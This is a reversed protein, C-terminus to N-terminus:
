PVLVIKGPAGSAMVAEHAAPAEALPVERAIVPNLTRNELGRGIAEHAEALEAPTAHAPHFLRM